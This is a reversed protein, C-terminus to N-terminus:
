LGSWNLAMWLVAFMWGGGAVASIIMWMTDKANEDM